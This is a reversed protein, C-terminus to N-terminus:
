AIKKTWYDAAESINDGEGAESRLLLFDYAIRFKPHKTITAVKKTQQKELRYQLLWAEQITLTIRKPILIHLQQRKLVSHMSATLLELYNAGTEEFANNIHEQLPWWLLVAFLFAPNLPKGAVYRKDTNSFAKKLFLEAIVGNKAGLSAETHPFLVAFLGYKRLLNFTKLSKGSAFWKSIEDFLRASAVNQLLGVLKIIPDCTTKAIDFGLKAALRIARLMRVPDEHYRLVPDGIMRIIKRRLDKIGGVYDVISFDKINYYLANITFDRRWVDENISGYVNDRLIMGSASHSRQSPADNSTARFTAVEIVHQGFRIHALRFRRGILICNSFLARIEEPKADTVIDFDKPCLGVLLDRVGGGVLYAAFGASSLRYLVKLANKDINARSINHKSRPIIKVQKNDM